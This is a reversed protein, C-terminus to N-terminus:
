AHYDGSVKPLRILARLALLGSLTLWLTFSAAPPIAARSIWNAPSFHLLGAATTGYIESLSLPGLAWGTLRFFTTDPPPVMASIPNLTATPTLNLTLAPLIFMVTLWLAVPILLGVSESPSGAAATLAILGFILMYLASIAFFGALDAWDEPALDIAPLALMTIVSIGAAAATLAAILVFLAAIKAVAYALPSVPRSALLPLAGATRDLSVLRNGTVIAALAGILSVYVSMNRLLILPSADLVPNSPVPKGAAALFAAADLYIKNVTATAQWGLWGSLLVLGGFLAVILGVTPERLVLRLSQATIHHVSM